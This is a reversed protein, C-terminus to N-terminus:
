KLQRATWRNPDVEQVGGVPSGTNGRRGEEACAPAVVGAPVDRHERRKVERDAMPRGRIEPPDAGANGKELGARRESANRGARDSFQEICGKTM